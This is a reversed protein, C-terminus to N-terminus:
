HRVQRKKESRLLGKIFSEIDWFSGGVEVPPQLGREKGRGVSKPLGGNESISKSTSFKEGGRRHGLFVGGDPGREEVPPEPFNKVEGSEM